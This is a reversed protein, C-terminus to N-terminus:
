VQQTWKAPCRVAVVKARITAVFSLTWDVFLKAPSLIPAAIRSSTRLASVFPRTEAIRWTLRRSYGRLGGIQQRSVCNTTPSLM